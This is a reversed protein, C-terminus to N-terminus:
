GGPPVDIFLQPRHQVVTHDSMFKEGKAVVLTEGLDGPDIPDEEGAALSRGAPKDQPRARRDEAM